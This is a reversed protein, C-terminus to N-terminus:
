QQGEAMHAAQTRVMDEVLLAADAVASVTSVSGRVRGVRMLVVDQIFAQEAAPDGIAATGSMRLWLMEDAVDPLPIEEVSV